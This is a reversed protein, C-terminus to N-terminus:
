RMKKIRWAYFLMVLALILLALGERAREINDINGDGIAVGEFTDPWFVIAGMLYLFSFLVSVSLRLKNFIFFVSALTASGYIVYWLWPDPDNYQLAMAWVFLVILVIAVIRDFIKM